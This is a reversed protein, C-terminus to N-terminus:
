RFIVDGEVSRDRDDLKKKAGTELEDWDWCACRFRVRRLRSGYRNRYDRMNSCAMMAYKWGEAVSYETVSVAPESHAVM